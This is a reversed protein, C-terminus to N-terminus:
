TKRAPGKEFWYVLFYYFFTSMVAVFVFERLILLVPENITPASAIAAWETGVFKALSGFLFASAFLAFFQKTRYFRLFLAKAFYGWVMFCITGGILATLM